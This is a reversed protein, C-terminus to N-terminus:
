LVEDLEGVFEVEFREAAAMGRERDDDWVCVLEAHPHRQATACLGGAHGFWFSLQAFRVKNEAM